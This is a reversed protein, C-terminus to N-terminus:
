ANVVYYIECERDGIYAEADEKSDFVPCVGLMGDAWTLSLETKVSAVSVTRDKELLMVLYM